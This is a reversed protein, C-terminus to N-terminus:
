PTGADFGVNFRHTEAMDGLKKPGNKGDHDSFVDRLGDLPRIRCGVSEGGAKMRQILVFLPKEQGLHIRAIEIDISGGCAGNDLPM